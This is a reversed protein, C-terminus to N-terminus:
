CLFLIHSICIFMDIHQNYAQTKNNLQMSVVVKM